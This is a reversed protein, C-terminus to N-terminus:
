DAGSLVAKQHTQIKKDLANAALSTLYEEIVRGEVEHYHERLVQKAKQDRYLHLCTECPHVSNIPLEYDPLYSKVFELIREPGEVHIWIKLFDDPTEKILSKLTVNAISGLHLDPIRELHLGCCAVLDLDPTVSLVNLATKCGSKLKENFRSHEALHTLQTEGKNDIWVNRQVTIQKQNIHDVLDPHQLIANIDFTSENFLEANILTRIGANYCAYAGNIIYDVPVYRSHFTGTSFNVENLGADVLKKVRMEATRRSTAWYGNTVCRTTYGYSHAREILADLKDKLLFCEGGTFVIVSISPIERAEDILKQMREYPIAKTVKPSCTFCCHECAATCQHMTIISLTKPHVLM